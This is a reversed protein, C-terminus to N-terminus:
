EERVTRIGLSAEGPFNRSTWSSICERPSKFGDWISSIRLTMWLLDAHLGLEAPIAMLFGPAPPGSVPSACTSIGVATVLLILGFRWDTLFALSGGRTALM